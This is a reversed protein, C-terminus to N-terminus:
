EAGCICDALHVVSGDYSIQWAGCECSSALEIMSDQHKEVLDDSEYDYDDDFDDDYEEDQDLVDATTTPETDWVVNQSINTNDM